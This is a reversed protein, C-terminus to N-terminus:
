LCAGHHSLYPLLTVIDRVSLESPGSAIHGVCDCGRSCICLEEMQRLEAVIGDNVYWFVLPKAESSRTLFNEKSPKMTDM